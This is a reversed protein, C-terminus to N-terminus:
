AGQAVLKSPNVEADQRRADPAHPAPRNDIDEGQRVLRASNFAVVMAGAVQFIAALVPSLLGAAACTIGGVIIVSGVLFNQIVTWRMRRSLKLLFPLRNLESNMLAVTASELAVDSGAAGMAIGIHSAALAPGDNVGDGIFAVRHGDAILNEIYHVKDEPNCEGRCQRIELKEAMTRVVLERDGSVMAIHRIGSRALATICDSAAPRPQDSLGIWGLASGNKVVYLLSMGSADAEALGSFDAQEVGNDNMWHINGVIFQDSGFTARVGRGPEEHLEDPTRPQLNVKAALKRVALAVPHNSGSEAIAAADLLTQTDVGAEPALRNVELIGTTLTGTKDFVVATTNAMAEVDNVDKFLVGLRAAASLAAVVAAPTALILAIPCAVVLIAVVRDVGDPEYRNFFLVTAAIMLVVPMYYKMYSDIMRVFPLRSSQAKVILERVKGLTTDSGAKDVRIDLVGTLNSTGAYVTDSEAKDAPLSEGTINAENISSRGKIIAGDALINEGPRVRIVDGPKLDRGEVADEHGDPRLVSATGPSLRALAELSAKAGSATRSEIIMSILIFLAICASTILDGMVCSAIVAIVGLEHMRMRGARLDGIIVLLMPVILIVVAILASLSSLFGGDPVLKLTLGANVIFVLGIGVAPM